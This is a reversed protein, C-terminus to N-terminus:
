IEQFFPGYGQLFNELNLREEGTLKIGRLQFQEDLFDLANRHGAAERPICLDGDKGVYGYRRPGTTNIWNPDEPMLVVRLGSVKHTVAEGVREFSM